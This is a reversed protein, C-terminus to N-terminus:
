RIGYLRFTSGAVMSDAGAFIDLRTVPSSDLSTVVGGAQFIRERTAAQAVFTARAASGSYNPIHFVGAAFESAAPTDTGAIQGIRWSSVGVDELPASSGNVVQNINTRYLAGGLGNVQARLTRTGVNTRARWRVELDRFGQPINLFTAFQQTSTLVIEQLLVAGTLPGAPIRRDTVDSNTIATANAPVAVRALVMFIDADVAPEVPVAAPTGMVVRLRWDDDVGSVESANRVEIIILDIRANTADAAPIGVNVTDDSVVCYRGDPTDSAQAQVFATGASVDVSMDPTGSRESVAFYDSRAVGVGTLGALMGRYVRAHHIPESSEIWNPGQLETM